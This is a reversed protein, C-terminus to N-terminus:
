KGPLSYFRRETSGYPLTHREPVADHSAKRKVLEANQAILARLTANMDKNEEIISARQEESIDNRKLFREGQWIADELRTKNEVFKDGMAEGAKQNKDTVFWALLAPPLILAATIGATAAAGTALASEAAVLTALYAEEAALTLSLATRSLALGIGSSHWWGAVGAFFAGISWDAAAGEVAAVVPAVISAGTLWSVFTGLHRIAGLVASRFTNNVLFLLGGAAFVTKTKEWFSSEHWDKIGQAVDNVVELLWEFAQKLPPGVAVALNTFAETISPLIKELSELLEVVHPVLEEFLTNLIRNMQAGPTKEAVDVATKFTSGPKVKQEKLNKALAMLPTLGQVDLWASLMEHGPAQTRKMQDVFAKFFDVLETESMGAPELGMKMMREWGQPDGITKNFFETIIPLAGQGYLHSLETTANSISKQVEPGYLLSANIMSDKLGLIATVLVDTSLKYVSAANALEEHFVLSDEASQGFLDTMNVMSKGLNGINKGLLKADKFFKITPLENRRIGAEFAVGAAQFHQAVNLGSNAIGDGIRELYAANARGHAAFTTMGAGVDKIFSFAAAGMSTVAPTLKKIADELGGRSRRAKRKRGLDEKLNENLLTIQDVLNGNQSEIEEAM